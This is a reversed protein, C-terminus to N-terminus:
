GVVEQLSEVDPQGSESISIKDRLQKNEVYLRATEMELDSIRRKMKDNTEQVVSALPIAQGLTWELVQCALEALPGGIAKLSDQVAVIETGTKGKRVVEKPSRLRDTIVEWAQRFAPGSCDRLIGNATFDAKYATYLATIEKQGFVFADPENHCQKRLEALAPPMEYINCLRQATSAGMGFYNGAEKYTLARALRGRGVMMSQEYRNLPKSGTHDAMILIEDDASLGSYSMVDLKTFQPPEGKQENEQNILNMMTFRLNGRLVLFKFKSGQEENELGTPKQSVTIYAKTSDFGFTKLSHYLDENNEKQYSEDERVNFDRDTYMQSLFVQRITPKLKAIRKGQEIKAAADAATEVSDLVDAPSNKRAM